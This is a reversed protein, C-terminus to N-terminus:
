TIIHNDKLFEPCNVTWQLASQNKQYLVNSNSKPSLELNVKGL